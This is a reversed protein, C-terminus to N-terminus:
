GKNKVLWLVKRNRKMKPHKEMTKNREFIRTGKFEVKENLENIIYVNEQIEINNKTISNIKITGSISKTKLNLFRNSNFEYKVNLLSTDKEITYIENIRIKSSNTFKITL